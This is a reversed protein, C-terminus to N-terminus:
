RYRTVIESLNPRPRDAPPETSTGIHILGAIRETPGLGLKDLSRRDYAYWETLWNTAYGMANAATVLNMCAAGTSLIQEWETAKPHEYTHSVVAIVLPARTLRKHETAIREPDADPHDNTYMEAITDGLITAGTHEIVIFRWPVSKGHDPVRSAIM